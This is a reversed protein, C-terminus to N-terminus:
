TNGLAVIIRYLQFPWASLPQFLFSGEVTYIVL